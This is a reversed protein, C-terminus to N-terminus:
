HATHVPQLSWRGGPATAHRELSIISRGVGSARSCRFTARRQPRRLPHGPASRSRRARYRSITKGFGVPNDLIQARSFRFDKAEEGRTEVDLCDRINQVQAVLRGAVAVVGDFALYARLSACRTRIATRAPRTIVPSAFTAPSRQYRRIACAAQATPM